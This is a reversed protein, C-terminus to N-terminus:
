WKEVLLKLDKQHDKLYNLLTIACYIIDSPAANSAHPKIIIPPQELDEIDAKHEALFENYYAKYDPKLFFPYFAISVM